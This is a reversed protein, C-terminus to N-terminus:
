AANTIRLFRQLNKFAQPKVVANGRLAHLPAHATGKGPMVLHIRKIQCSCGGVVHTRLWGEDVDLLKIDFAKQHLLKVGVCVARNIQAPAVADRGKLLLGVKGTQADGCGRAVVLNFSCMNNVAAACATRKAGPTVGADRGFFTVVAPANSIHAKFIRRGHLAVGPYFRREVFAAGDPLVEHGVAHPADVVLHPGIGVRLFDATFINHALADIALQAPNHARALVVNHPDTRVGVAAFANVLQAMALHKKHAIRRMHDAWKTRAAAVRADLISVVQGPLQCGHYLVAGSGFQKVTVVFFAM